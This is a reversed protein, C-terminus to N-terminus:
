HAYIDVSLRWHRAALQSLLTPSIDFGQNDTSMFLGLFVDITFRSALAKWIEAEGPVAALLATLLKEM